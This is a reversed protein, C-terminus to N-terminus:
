SFRGKSYRAQTGWRILLMGKETDDQGPQTRFLPNNTVAEVPWSVGAIIFVGGCRRQMHILATKKIIRTLPENSWAVRIGPKDPFTPKRCIFILTIECPVSIHILLAHFGTCIELLFWIM